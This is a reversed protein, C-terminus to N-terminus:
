PTKHPQDRVADTRCNLAVSASDETFLDSFDLWAQENAFCRLRLFWIDLCLEFRRSRSWLMVRRFNTPVVASLLAASRLPPIVDRKRCDAEAAPPKSKMSFLIRSSWAAMADPWSVLWSSVCPYMRRMRARFGNSLETM